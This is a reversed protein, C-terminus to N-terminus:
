VADFMVTSELDAEKAEKLLKVVSEIIKDTETYNKLM